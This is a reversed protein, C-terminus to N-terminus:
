FWILVRADAGRYLPQQQPVAGMDILVPFRRPLRIWDTDLPVYPLAGTETAARAIGPSISRVTGWHLRWPDSGITFLVSQGPKLRALHREEVAALIHWDANSVVAALPKGASAYDGVRATLPAVRGAAPSTIRTRSLQYNAQALTQVAAAQEAQRVTVLTQAVAALSQAKELDAMAVSADRRVTDLAEASIDGTASLAESRSQQLLATDLSARAAAVMATSEDIAARATRIRDAALTVEAEAQAVALAFPTREIEALLTGAEVQADDRVPMQALPGSVEPAVFIVHTDVYADGTYAFFHVSTEYILFAAAVAGILCAIVHREIFSLM